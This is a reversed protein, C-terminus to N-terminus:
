EIEIEPLLLQIKTALFRRGASSSYNGAAGSPGSRWFDIGTVIEGSSNEGQLNTLAEELVQTYASPETIMLGRNRICEVVHPLIMHMIIVGVGKQIVYNEPDDFAPRLLERIGRWYAEIVKLHQEPKLRGFYPSSLVPKLSTVMSASPITTEGKDMSPLRVRNRWIQSEVAMREVLSQGIVQWEKGKEQLAEYVDDDNEARRRLLALALDTKVSKATSNVIYFQEMEQDESAGLLCVFPIMFHSWREPDEEMLKQLALVRHQGDVVYFKVPEAAALYSGLQLNDGELAAKADRNRINLLVATPLDTRDKRLDSALSNIRPEQPQRQYGKKTRTDYWPVTYGDPILAGAPLFGVVTPVGSRLKPGQIVPIHGPQKFPARDIPRRM